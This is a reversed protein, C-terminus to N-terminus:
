PAHREDGFRNRPTWRCSAAAGSKRQRTAKRQPDITASRHLDTTASRQPDVTDAWQSNQPNFAEILPKVGARHSDLKDKQTACSYTHLFCVIIWIEFFDHMKAEYRKVIVTRDQKLKTEIPDRFISLDATM